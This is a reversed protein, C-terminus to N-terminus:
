IVFALPVLTASALSLEAISSNFAFNFDLSTVFFSIESTMLEGSALLKVIGASYFGYSVLSAGAVTYSFSALGYFTCAALLM